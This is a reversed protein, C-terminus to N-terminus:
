TGVYVSTQENGTVFPLETVKKDVRAKLKQDSVGSLALAGLSGTETVSQQMM